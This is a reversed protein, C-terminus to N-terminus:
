RQAAPAAAPAAAPPAAAPAEPTVLSTKLQVEVTQLAKDVANRAAVKTLFDRALDQVPQPLAAAEQAVDALRDENLAAEMRAVIAEVTKDDAGHNVKRVRVVSKAGSLLRGVITGDSPQEESDILRYALPKFEARLEPLTPVGKDAFRDLPSLDIGSGAADRVRALEAAYPGGREIIRKLDTLDLSLVIRKATTKRAEEGAVVGHVDDQLSSLKSTVPAVAAAVDASKAFTALRAEIESRLGSLSDVATKLALSTRETESKLATLDTKVATLDRDLRQTGAKAAESAENAVSVRTEIEDAVSKRLADLKAPVMAELDAIKGTLAALQPLRGSAPDSQAAASMASLQEELKGLRAAVDSPVAQTGAKADLAKIDDALAAQKQSLADISATLGQLKAVKADTAKLRASVDASQAYSKSAAEVAAIRQELPSLDVASSREGLGLQSALM